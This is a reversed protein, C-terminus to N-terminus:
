VDDFATEMHVGPTGYGEYVVKIELTHVTEVGDAGM